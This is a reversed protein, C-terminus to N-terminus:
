GGLGEPHRPRPRPLSTRRRSGQLDGCSPVSRPRVTGPPGDPHAAPPIRGTTLTTARGRLARVDIPEVRAGRRRVSRRGDVVLVADAHAVVGGGAVGAVLSGLLEVVGGGLGPFAEVVLGGLAAPLAGGVVEAESAGLLAGRVRRAV